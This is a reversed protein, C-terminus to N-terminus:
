IIKQNWHNLVMKINKNACEMWLTKKVILVNLIISDLPPLVFEIEVFVKKTDRKGEEKSNKWGGSIM